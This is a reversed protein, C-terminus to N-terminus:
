QHPVISPNLQNKKFMYFSHNILKHHLSILWEPETLHMILLVRETIICCIQLEYSPPIEKPYSFIRLWCQRLFHVGGSKTCADPFTSKEKGDGVRKVQNPVRLSSGRGWSLSSGWLAARHYVLGSLMLKVECFIVLFQGFLHFVMLPFSM